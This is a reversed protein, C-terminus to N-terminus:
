RIATVPVRVLEVPFIEIICTTGQLTVDMECTLDSLGLTNVSRSLHGDKCFELLYYGTPMTELGLEAKNEQRLQTSNRNKYVDSGSIIKINNLIDNRQVDDSHTRVVFSRFRNGINFKHQFKPNTATVVKRVGYERNEIYEGPEADPDIYEDTSVQLVPTVDAAVGGAAPDYASTMVDDYQGWTVVLDLTTIGGRWTTDLLSDNRRIANWMGFDLWAVLEFEIANAGTTVAAYGDWETTVAAGTGSIIRRNTMPTGYRLECLRCLTEFDLAKLVERGNKRIEIKSVLQAINELDKPAGASAGAARYLTATLRFKLKDMSYNRPLELTSTQGATFNLSGLDREHLKKVAKV